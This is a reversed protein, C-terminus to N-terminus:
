PMERAAAVLTDVLWDESFSDTNLTVDYVSADSWDFHYVSKLLSRRDKDSQMLAREAVELHIGQEIAHRRARVTLSGHIYGKLVGPTDRLIHQGAHGVIVAGGDSALQRVVEEIFHRNDESTLSQLATNWMAPSPEAFGPTGEITMTSIAGLRRMTREFFGPVRETAAMDTDAIGARRAADSTIEWDYYRFSLAEAVRRAIAYGGSGNQVSLAVVSTPM